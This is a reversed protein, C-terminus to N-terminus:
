PRVEKGCHTCIYIEKRKSIETLLGFEGCHMCAKNKDICVSSVNRIWSLFYDSYEKQKEEQEPPQAIKGILDHIYFTESVGDTQNKYRRVYFEGGIFEIIFQPDKVIRGYTDMFRGIILCDKGLVSCFLLDNLQGTNSKYVKLAADPKWNILQPDMGAIFKQLYFAAEKNISKM